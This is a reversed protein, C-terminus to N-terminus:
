KSEQMDKSILFARKEQSLELSFNIRILLDNSLLQGVCLPEPVKGCLNWFSKGCLWFLFNQSHEPKTPKHFFVGNSHGKGRLDV